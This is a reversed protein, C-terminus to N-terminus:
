DNEQSNRYLFKVAEALMEKPIESFHDQILEWLHKANIKRNEGVVRIFQFVEATVEAQSLM